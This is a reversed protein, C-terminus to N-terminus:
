EELKKVLGAYRKEIAFGHGYFYEPRFFGTTVTKVGAARMRHFFERMLGDAVGKKRWREAVVIKELHAAHGGDEVEYHLGALIPGRESVALLYQHEPRFRVDLKAGLFLRYLQGVEKPNLAHRVRFANGDLDPLSVVIESQRGGAIDVLM